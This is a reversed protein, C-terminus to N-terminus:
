RFRCTHAFCVMRRVQPPRYARATHIRRRRHASRSQRARRKSTHRRRQRVKRSAARKTRIRRKVKAPRKELATVSRTIPAQAEEEIDALISSLREPNISARASRILPAAYVPAKTPLPPAVNGGDGANATSLPEFREVSRSTEADIFADDTDTPTATPTPVPKTEILVPAASKVNAAIRTPPAIPAEVIPAVIPRLGLALPKATSPAAATAAPKANPPVVTVVTVPAEPKSLKKSTERVTVVISEVPARPKAKTEVPKSQPPQAKDVDPKAAVPRVRTFRATVAPTKTDSAVAAILGEDSFLPALVKTMGIASAGAVSLVVLLCAARVMTPTRRATIKTEAEAVAAKFSPLDRAALEGDVFLQWANCSEIIAINHRKDTKPNTLTTTHVGPATESFHLAM